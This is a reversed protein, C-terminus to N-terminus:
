RMWFRTVTAVPRPTCVIVRSIRFSAAVRSRIPTGASASKASASATCAITTQASRACCAAGAPRAAARLRAAMRLAGIGGISRESSALSTVGYTEIMEVCWSQTAGPTATRSTRGGSVSRDGSGGFKGVISGGSLMSLRGPAAFRQPFDEDGAGRRRVEAGRGTARSANTGILRRAKRPPVEERKVRVARVDRQGPREPDDVSPTSPKSGPM